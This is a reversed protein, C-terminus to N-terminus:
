GTLMTFIGTGNEAKKVWKQEVRDQRELNVARRLGFPIGNVAGNQADSWKQLM